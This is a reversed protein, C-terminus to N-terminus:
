QEPSGVRDTPVALGALQLRRAGVARVESWGSMQVSLHFLIMQRTLRPVNHGEHPLPQRTHCTSRPVLGERGCRSRPDMPACASTAVSGQPVTVRALRSDLRPPLFPRPVVRGGSRRGLRSRLGHVAPLM